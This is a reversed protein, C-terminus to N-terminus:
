LEQAPPEDAGSRAAAEETEATGQEPHQEHNGKSAGDREVKESHEYGERHPFTGQARYLFFLRGFAVSFFSLTLATDPRQGYAQVWGTGFIQLSNKLSWKAEGQMPSERGADSGNPNATAEAMLAGADGTHARDTMGYERSGM